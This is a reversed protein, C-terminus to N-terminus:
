IYNIFTFLQSFFWNSLRFSIIRDVNPIIIHQCRKEFTTKTILNFNVKYPSSLRIFLEDFRNNLHYFAKYVDFIDLFEFIEYFIENSLDEFCTILSRNM